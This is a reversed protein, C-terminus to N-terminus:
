ASTEVPKALIPSLDARHGIALGQGGEPGLVASWNMHPGVIIATPVSQDGGALFSPQQGTMTIPSPTLTINVGAQTTVVVPEPEVVQVTENVVSILDNPLIVAWDTPQNASMTLESLVVTTGVDGTIVIPPSGRITYKNGAPWNLYNQHSPNAKVKWFGHNGLTFLIVDGSVAMKAITTFNDTPTKTLITM